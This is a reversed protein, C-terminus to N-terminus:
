RKTQLTISITGNPKFFVKDGYMKLLDRRHLLGFAFDISAYSSFYWRTEANLGFTIQPNIKQSNNFRDRDILVLETGVAIALTEKANFFVKNVFLKSALYTPNLKAYEAGVGVEFNSALRTGTKFSIDLVPTKDYDYAGSIALKPDLGFGIFYAEQSIAKTAIFLLVITLLNKM